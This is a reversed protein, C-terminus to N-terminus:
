FRFYLFETPRQTIIFSVAIGFAVGAAVAWRLSPIFRSPQRLGPVIVRPYSLLQQTNPAFLAVALLGVICIAATALQTATMTEGPAVGHLGLVSQWMTLTVSLNDARFPVWALMVFVLTLTWAIPNPLQLRYTDAIKNWAHNVVLGCGHIAGWIVFTWAAGHWLGGLLM